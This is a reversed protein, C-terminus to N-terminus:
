YERKSRGLGRATGLVAFASHLAAPLAPRGALKADYLTGSWTSPSGSCLARATTFWANRDRLPHHWITQAEHNAAYPQGIEPGVQSSPERARPHSEATATRPSVAWRVALLFTNKSTGAASILGIMPASRRCFRSSFRGMTCVPARDEYGYLQWVRGRCDAILIDTKYQLTPEPSSDRVGFMEKVSKSMSDSKQYRQRLAKEVDSGNLAAKASDEAAGAAAKAKDVVEKGKEVGRQVADQVAAKIKPAQAKTEELASRAAASVSRAEAQAADKAAAGRSALGDRAVAAAEGVSSGGFAQTWLRSFVGEADERVETWDKNQAWRVAGEIEANWRDKATEVLNDRAAALHDPRQPPLVPAPSEATSSLQNLVIANARLLEGQYQRNRQHALVGLYALSLTLTVGGTFGTTFGM